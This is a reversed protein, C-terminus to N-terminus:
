RCVVRYPVCSEGPPQSFLLMVASDESPTVWNLGCVTSTTAGPSRPQDSHLLSVVANKPQASMSWPLWGGAIQAAPPVLAEAGSVDPVAASTMSAYWFAWPPAAGDGASTSCIMTLLAVSRPAGASWWPAPRTLVSLATWSASDMLLLLGCPLVSSSLLVLRFAVTFAPWDWVNLTPTVLSPVPDWVTVGVTEPLGVVTEALVPVTLRLAEDGVYM